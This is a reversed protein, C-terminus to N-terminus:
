WGTYVEKVEYHSLRNAEDFFFRVQIDTQVFLTRKTDQIIGGIERSTLEKHGSHHACYKDMFHVVAERSSGLPIEQQIMAEVQAVTLPNSPRLLWWLAVEITIWVLALVAVVWKVWAPVCQLFGWATEGFRRNMLM